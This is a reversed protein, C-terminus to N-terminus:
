QKTRDTGSAAPVLRILLGERRLELAVYICGDTATAIARIRGLGHFISERAAERDDKLVVRFLEEGVLSGIFLDGKWAPFAAGEYFAIPSVGISPTWNIIPQELGDVKIDTTFTIGNYGTGYSILPWGYNHGPKILNIEDGGRPGHESSWLEGNEPDIALGQPNRHGYSWIPAFAGPAHVFPNDSPISGDEMLRFIKGQPSKLDQAPQAALTEKTEPERSNGHEVGLDASSSMFVHGKGDFAIRGTATDRPVTLLTQGDVWQNDRIHGRILKLQMQPAGNAGPTSDGATLYIWGTSRYDPPIAVDLLVRKFLDIPHGAPTGHVPDAVLRGHDILRLGGQEESLLLRDGPLAALGWPKGTEAVIEIRFASLESQIPAKPIRAKQDNDLQALYTPSNLNRQNRVFDVLGDVEKPSLMGAFAPMGKDPYGQLVSRRVEADSSGHLYTEGLLSPGQGGQLKTGHCAGCVGAVIEEPARPPAEAPKPTVPSAARSGGFAIGAILCLSASALALNPWRTM